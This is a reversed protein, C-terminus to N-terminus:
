SLTRTRPPCLYNNSLTQVKSIYKSAKNTAPGKSSKELGKIYSIVMYINQKTTPQQQRPEQPQNTRWSTPQQQQPPTKTSVVTTTQKIGLQPVSLWHTGRQPTGTRKYPDEPTSSVVKARHALTNYVSNKATIFHNNDWHLYQDTHTPKRYVTTLIINNSGPTVKTDLFPISCDWRSRRTNMYSLLRYIKRTYSQLEELWDQHAHHLFSKM